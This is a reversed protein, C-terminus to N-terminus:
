FFTIDKISCERINKRHYGMLKPNAAFHGLFILNGVKVKCYTTATVLVTIPRFITPGCM